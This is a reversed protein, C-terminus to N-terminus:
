LLIYIKNGDGYLPIVEKNAQLEYKLQSINAVVDELDEKTEQLFLFFFRIWNLCTILYIQKQEYTIM